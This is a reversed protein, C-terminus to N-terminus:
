VHANTTLGYQLICEYLSVACLQVCVCIYMCACVCMYVYMCVCVYICVHVCVCHISIFHQHRLGSKQIIFASNPQPCSSSILHIKKIFSVGSCYDIGRGEVADLVSGSSWPPGRACVCVFPFKIM